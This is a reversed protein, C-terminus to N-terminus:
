FNTCIHYIYTHEYNVEKNNNSNQIQYVDQLFSLLVIVRALKIRARLWAQKAEKSLIRLKTVKEVYAADPFTRVGLFTKVTM